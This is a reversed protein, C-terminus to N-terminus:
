GPPQGTGGRSPPLAAQDEKRRDGVIMQSLADATARVDAPKGTEREICTMQVGQIGCPTISSFPELAESTVNLAFGHMTIWRRVGVGISAIKRGAIWVGTLEDRRMAPVGLTGLFRTLLDEIERLHAHLDRGRGRLDYILYGVLQGPGHYTAKGGRNTEVVPHPLCGAVGLSSKDRSRGTTYVPEHELFLVTDEAAGREREDRKEEQIALAEEFKLRGLWRTTITGEM